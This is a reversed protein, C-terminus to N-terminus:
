DFYDDSPDSREIESILKKAGNHEVIAEHHIDEDGAQELFAPYFVEEEITTHVRLATCIEAALRSKVSESRSKEFQAFKGEVERHDAKLLAVANPAKHTRTAARTRSQARSQTATSPM